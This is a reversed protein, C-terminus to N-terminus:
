NNEQQHLANGYDIGLLVWCRQKDIIYPRLDYYLAGYWDSENYTTDTRVPDKMIVQQYDTYKTVKARCSRESSIVITDEPNM